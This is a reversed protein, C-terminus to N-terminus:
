RMFGSGEIKKERWSSLYTIIVFIIRKKLIDSCYFPLNIRNCEMKNCKVKMVSGEIFLAIDWEIEINTDV